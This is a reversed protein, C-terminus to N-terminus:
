VLFEREFAHATRKLAEFRKTYSMSIPPSISTKNADVVYIEGSNKDRLVDLEGFDMHLAQSFEQLQTREIPSFVSEASVTEAHMSSSEFRRGLLRRKRYVLPLTRGVVVVRLDEVYRGDETTNDILRQYSYGARPHQIPEILIRGNHVGNIESKEVMLGTYTTPDVVLPRNCVRECVEAVNSKSINTCRGNIATAEEKHVRAPLVMTLDLWLITKERKRSVLTRGLIQAIGWLTYLPLPVHPLVGLEKRDGRKQVRMGYLALRITHLAYRMVVTMLEFPRTLPKGFRKAFEILSQFPMSALM